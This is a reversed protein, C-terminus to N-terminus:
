TIKPTIYAASKKEKEELPPPFDRFIIMNFCM